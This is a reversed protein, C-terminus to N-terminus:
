NENLKKLGEDLFIEQRWGPLLIYNSWPNLVEKRRKKRKGWNIKVNLKKIKLYKIVLNKLSILEDASLAYTKFFPKKNQFLNISLEFGKCIDDIYLLNINQNGESM